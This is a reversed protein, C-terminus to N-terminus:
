PQSMWFSFTFNAMWYESLAPELVLDDVNDLQGEDLLAGHGTEVLSHLDPLELLLLAEHHDIERVAADVGHDEALGVLHDERRAVLVM